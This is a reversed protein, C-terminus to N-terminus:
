MGFSAGISYNRTQYYYNGRGSPFEPDLLGKLKSWTFLNTGAVYLRMNEVGMRNSLSQPVTYGLNVNKLKVYSADRVWTSNRGPSNHNHDSRFPFRPFEADPNDPRWYDLLYPSFYNEWTPGEILAGELYADVNLVGQFLASADFGKYQASITSGLTYRPIQNGIVVRDNADIRGDGNQDKFKLDGPATKGPVQTPSAAVEEPTQFIGLV